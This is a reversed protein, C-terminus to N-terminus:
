DRLSVFGHQWFRASRLLRSILVISMQADRWIWRLKIDKRFDPFKERRCTKDLTMALACGFVPNNAAAQSAGELLAKWTKAPDMPGFNDAVSFLIDTRLEVESSALLAHIDLSSIVDFVDGEETRCRKASEHIAERLLDSLTEDTLVAEQIDITSQKM